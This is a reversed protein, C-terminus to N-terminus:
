RQAWLFTRKFPFLYPSRDELEALLREEYRELFRGYDHEDLRKEYDTLTTGKVWEIVADRSPLEHAYVRMLVSQTRFGIRYLHASYEEPTLVPSRRVFGEFLTVFPEEAAVEAAMTQSVHDHNAPVQIALQGTPSLTDALRELLRSHDELWHLAANSFILDFQGLDAITALDRQEFSLGPSDFAQSKALMASSTDVGITEEAQLHEHLSRTLEGTGCGLDAVRMNPGPRVMAVLDHFPRAREEKFREYQQPDWDSAM